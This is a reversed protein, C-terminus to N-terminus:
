AVIAVWGLRWAFPDTEGSHELSQRRSGITIRGLVNIGRRAQIERRPSGRIVQSNAPGFGFWSRYREWRAEKGRGNPQFCRPLDTLISAATMLVWHESFLRGHALDCAKIGCGTDTVEVRVIIRELSPVSGQQMDHLALRTASLPHQNSDPLTASADPSNGQEYSISSTPLILKTSISVTGGKPTFKCANSSFDSVITMKSDHPVFRTLNTV